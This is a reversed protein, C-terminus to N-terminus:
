GLGTTESTKGKSPCRAGERTMPNDRRDNAKKEPRKLESERERDPRPQNM